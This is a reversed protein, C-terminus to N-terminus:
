PEIRKYKEQLRISLEEEMRDIDKIRDKLVLRRSDLRIAILEMEGLESVIDQISNQILYIEKQEEETFKIEEIPQQNEM